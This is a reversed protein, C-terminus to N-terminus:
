SNRMMLLCRKTPSEVSVAVITPHERLVSHDNFANEISHHVHSYIPEFDLRDPRPARIPPASVSVSVRSLKADIGAEGEPGHDASSLRRTV